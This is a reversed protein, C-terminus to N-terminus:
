LHEFTHKPIAEIAGACLAPREMWWICIIWLCPSSVHQQMIYIDNPPRFRLDVTRLPDSDVGSSPEQQGTYNRDKRHTNTHTHTHTDSDFVGKWWRLLNITKDITCSVHWSCIVFNYDNFASLPSLQIALQLTHTSAAPRWCWPRGGILVCLFRFHLRFRQWLLWM